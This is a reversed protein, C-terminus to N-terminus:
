DLWECKPCSYVDGADFGYGGLSIMKTHCKKCRKVDWELAYYISYLFCFIGVVLLATFGATDSNSAPLNIRAWTWFSLELVGFALMGIKAWISRTFM